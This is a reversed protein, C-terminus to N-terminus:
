PRPGEPRSGYARELLEVPHLVEIGRGSLGARIQMWCGPNGTAVIEAGTGLIAAVKEAQLPGAIEPHLLNYIGGAGCCRDADPLPVLAVGPIQTLLNEVASAKVRQAHVLHCAQHHAVKRRVEGAPARIGIEDLFECVDRVPLGLGEPMSHPPERLSAGCGAANVILVDAKVEEFAERNRAYLEAADELHGGHRHLAGCCTQANPVVVDCGNETLVRITARHVDAYWESAICGLFLAARVRAKGVARFLGGSAAAEADLRRRSPPLIPPLLDDLAVLRVSIRRAPGRAGIRAAWRLLRRLGSRDYFYLLDTLAAIRTRHPLIGMLVARAAADKVRDLLRAFFRPNRARRMEHRFSEMMDGMRIGSPCVTECGRCVICEDLHRRAEPSIELNSEAYGRMLYIRGRPSDSERGTVGYTPCNQICLGCHVCDLTGTYEAFKAKFGAELPAPITM